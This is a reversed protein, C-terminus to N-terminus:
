LLGRVDQRGSGLRRPESQLGAQVQGPGEEPPRQEDRGDHGEEQGAEHRAEQAGRRRQEAGRLGPGHGPADPPQGPVECRHAQHRDGPHLRRRPGKRLRLRQDCLHVVREGRRRRRLRQWRHVRRDGTRDGHDWRLHSLLRVCGERRRSGTGPGPTHGVARGLAPHSARCAHRDDVRRTAVADPPTKPRTCHRPIHNRTLSLPAREGRSRSSAHHCPGPTTLPGARDSAPALLLRARAPHALGCPRERRPRPRRHHRPRAELQGRPRRRRGGLGLVGRACRPHHQHPDGRLLQHAEGALRVELQLERPVHGQRLAAPAKRLPLVPGETGGRDGLAPPSHPDGARPVLRRGELGPARLRRARRRAGGDALWREAALYRWSLSLTGRVDAPALVQAFTQELLDDPGGDERFRPPQGEYFKHFSDVKIARDLGKRNIWLLDARYHGNGSYYITYFYNWAIKVAAKRDTPDITPFPWAFIHHPAKGTQRDIISGEDSVDFRGENAKLAAAFIPDEDLHVLKWEGIAHRFDGRRYADLFEEPLLGRAEQWNEAGLVDGPALGARAPAALLVALGLVVLWARRRAARSGEGPRMQARTAAGINPRCPLLLPGVRSAPATRLSHAGPECAPRLKVLPDSDEIPRAM